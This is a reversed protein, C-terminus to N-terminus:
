VIPGALLQCRESVRCVTVSSEQRGVPDASARRESVSPPSDPTRYGIGFTREAEWIGLVNIPPECIPPAPAKGTNNM